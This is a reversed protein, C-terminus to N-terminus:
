FIVLIWNEILLISIPVRSPHVRNILNCLPNSKTRSGRTLNFGRYVIRVNSSKNCAMGQPIRLFCRSLAQWRHISGSDRGSAKYTAIQWCRSGWAKGEHRGNLPAKCAHNRRPCSRWKQHVIPQDTLCCRYKPAEDGGRHGNPSPWLVRCFHCHLDM